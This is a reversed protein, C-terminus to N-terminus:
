WEDSNMIEIRIDGTPGNKIFKILEDRMQGMRYILCELEEEKMSSACVIRNLDIMLSGALRAVIKPDQNLFYEQLRDIVEKNTPNM